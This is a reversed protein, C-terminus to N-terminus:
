FKFTYSIGPTPNFKVSQGESFLTHAGLRVNLGKWIVWRFGVELGIANKNEYDLNFGRLYSASSYFSSPIETKGIPIFWFTAGTRLFHTTVNSTFNTPYYGAHVSFQHYRYELGISPNRFANISIEQSDFRKQAHLSISTLALLALPIIKKM